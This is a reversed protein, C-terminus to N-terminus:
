RSAASLCGNVATTVPLSHCIACSMVTMKSDFGGQEMRELTKEEKKTGKGNNPIARMESTAGWLIILVAQM